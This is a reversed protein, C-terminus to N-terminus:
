FPNLKSKIETLREEDIPALEGTQLLRQYPTKPTDYIKKIHSGVRYKETIKMSPLFFNHLPNLYDKYIEDMLKVLHEEDFREYGFLERVHTFNKKSWM